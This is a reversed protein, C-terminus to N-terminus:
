HMHTHTCKGYLCHGLICINERGIIVSIYTHSKWEAVTLFDPNGHCDLSWENVKDLTVARAELYPQTSTYESTALLKLASHYAREAGGYDESRLARQAKLLQRKVSPPVKEDGSEDERKFLGLLGTSTFYISVLGIFNYQLQGIFNYPLQGLCLYYLLVVRTGIILSLKTEHQFLIPYPNFSYLCNLLSLFSVSTIIISSRCNHIDRWKTTTVNEGLLLLYPQAQFGSHQRESHTPRTPACCHSACVQVFLRSNSQKPTHALLHCPLWWINRRTLHRLITTLRVAM